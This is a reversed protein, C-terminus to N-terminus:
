SPLIHWKEVVDVASLPAAHRRLDNTAAIDCASAALQESIRAAVV